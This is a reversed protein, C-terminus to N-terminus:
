GRRRARGAAIGVIALLLIGLMPRSLAPIPQASASPDTAPGSPSRRASPFVVGKIVFQDVSTSRAPDHTIDGGYYAQLVYNQIELNSLTFAANGGADLTASLLPPILNAPTGPPPAGVPAACFQGAALVCLLVTGSPAVAGGAAHVAVAIDQGFVAPNPASSLALSAPARGVVLTVNQIASRACGTAIITVSFAGPVATTGAIVGTAPDITLGPPLGLAAFTIPLKGAAIVEYRYPVDPAAAPPPDSIIRPSVCGRVISIEYLKSVVNEAADQAVITCDFTGRLVPVGSIRATNAIGNQPTFNLGTGDLCGPTISWLVPLGKYPHAPTLIVSYFKQITADPLPSRPRIDTIQAGAWPAACILAVTAIRALRVALIGLAALRPRITLMSAQDLNL